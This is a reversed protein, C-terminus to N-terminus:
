VKYFLAQRVRGTFYYSEALYYWSAQANKHRPYQNLYDNLLPVLRNYLRDKENYDKSTAATKYLQNIRSFYDNGPDARLEVQGEPAQASLDLASAGLTIAAIATFPAKVYSYNRPKRM